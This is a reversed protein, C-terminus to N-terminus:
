AGCWKRWIQRYASEVDGAFIKGDMLPSQRMRERLGARLSSLKGQDGALEVAIQLYEESSNAILEELGITRLVSEGLRQSSTNGSLCVVPVGMWLAHCTVTHGNVPFTDLVVDVKQHLLLYDGMSQQGLMTLRSPDVGIRKVFSQAVASDSLGKAAMVLRSNGVRKLIETWCDLTKSSMKALVNFSGFTILGKGKAPLEGIEPASDPPKYCAFSNPLRILKERHWGETTGVPDMMGDTLRYDMAGLGSTDPYGLYTVQVPAPKRAFVLLRNGSTHGALDVLIDIQDQRVMEAVRADSLGVISRWHHSHKQLRATVHDGLARDSYCFVEVKAPDHFELLKELFFGVSHERFDPSVYGVRIRRDANRDNGHPVIEEALPKGYARDWDLYEQFIAAPNAGEQFHLAFLLNDYVRVATPDRKLVTRYEAIAEEVRGATKLAVALNTRALGDEPMLKLATEYESIAETVRDSDILAFGLNNHAQALNPDIAIAARCAAIAEKHRRCFKLAYGLNSYLEARKPNIEIAKQFCAIAEEGRGDELLMAGLANHAEIEKPRLATVQQLAGAAEVRRGAEWYVKSLENWAQWFAPELATARSYAAIAEDIKGQGALVLGLNFQYDPRSSDLAVARGILEASEGARGLNYVVIGLLQLADAHDPQQALIERYVAEAEGLRGAQRHQAALKLQTELESMGPSVGAM